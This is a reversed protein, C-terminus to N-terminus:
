SWRPKGTLLLDQDYIETRLNEIQVAQDLGALSFASTWSLGDGLIKPALFLHLRDVLRAQIFSSATVPGAEVFISYVNENMLVTMLEGLDFNRDRDTVKIQRGIPPAGVGPGTVIWIDEPLRVKAM